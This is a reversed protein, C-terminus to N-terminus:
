LSTLIERILAKAVDVRDELDICNQDQQIKKEKSEEGNKYVIFRDNANEIAIDTGIIKIKDDGSYAYDGLSLKGSFEQSHCLTYLFVDWNKGNLRERTNMILIDYDDQKHKKYYMGYGHNRMTSYKVFYYLLNKPTNSSNLYQEVFNTLATNNIESPSFRSLLKNIIDRTKAFNQRQQSPHFLDRWVADKDAVGIQTRWNVDQSYDGTALLARNILDRDCRFLLDFKGFNESNELGIIAICGQLLDHDELVFLAEEMDPNAKLWELKDREEEKQTTNFGRSGKEAQPIIGEIMITSAEELLATMNEDRIEDHSNWVLNRIIRIRRRFDADCVREKNNLWTIV